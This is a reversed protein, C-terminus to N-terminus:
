NFPNLSNYFEQRQKAAEERWNQYSVTAPSLDGGSTRFPETPEWNALDNKDGKGSWKVEVGSTPLKITSPTSDKTVEWSAPELPDGGLFKRTTGDQFQMETGVPVTASPSGKTAQEVFNQIYEPRMVYQDSKPNFLDALAKPDNAARAAEVKDQVDYFWTSVIDAAQHERGTWVPGSYLRQMISLSRGMKRGLSSNNPDRQEAVAIRLKNFDTANISGAKLAAYILDDNIIRKPDGDRAYIRLMLDKVVNPNSRKEQGLKSDWWSKNFVMLHERHEPILRDDNIVDREDMQREFIQKIYEDKAVRSNEAREWAAYRAASEKRAENALEQSQARGLLSDRAEPGIDAWEGAMLKNKIATPDGTRIEGSVAAVTLHERLSQRVAEIRAPPLRGAFTAAYEDADQLAVALYSPSMMLIAANSALLKQGGARAEAGAREVKIQAVRTDFVALSNQTYLDASAVGARTSTLDRLTDAEGVFKERIPDLDDGNTEADQLAKGYKARLEAHAVLMRRQDEAELRSMEREAEQGLTRGAATLAAGQPGGFDDATARRGLSANVAGQLPATYTPMKPM